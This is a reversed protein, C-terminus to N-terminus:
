TLLKDMLLSAKQRIARESNCQIVEQLSAGGERLVQHKVQPSSLQMMYLVDLSLTVMEQDAMKLTSCLAALLGLQTLWICLEKSKHAINAFIRLVMTNIGQSVPLLQILSSVLNLTLVASCCKTSHATLNNLVWATERALSPSSHQYTNLLVCLAGVLQIIAVHKSLDQVPCFYLLNGVCRLLPCVLLETKDQQKRQTVAVSLTVLQSSCHLLAGRALLNRHDESSSVLYHLCWACEIAAGLGFESDPTLFSLLHSPLSSAMVISVIEQVSDRTQLLQSLTFAVAEVVALNHRQNEMCSALAPIIGQALLKEKVAKSALCLNGLTYLCMETFKTTQGSLYTLLYPTSPMCASAVNTDPSYSLEHLCRVALLRCQADFGTLLGVLVHVSNEQKIFSLQAAPDRLVKSLAKLHIEKASGRRQLKCLLSVVDQERSATEM